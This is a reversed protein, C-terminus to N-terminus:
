RKVSWVAWCVWRETPGRRCCYNYFMMTSNKFNIGFNKRGLLELEDLRRWKEPIIPIEWGFEAHVKLSNGERRSPFTKWFADRPMVRFTIAQIVFKGKGKAELFAGIVM